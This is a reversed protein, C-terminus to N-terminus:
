SARQRGLSELKLLMQGRESWASGTRWELFLGGPRLLFSAMAAGGAGQKGGRRNRYVGLRILFPGAPRKWRSPEERCAQLIPRGCLRACSVGLDLRDILM